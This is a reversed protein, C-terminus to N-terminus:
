RTRRAQTPTALWGSADVIQGHEDVSVRTELGLVTSGAVEPSFVIDRQGAATDVRASEPNVGVAEFVSRALSRAVNARVPRPQPVPVPSSATPAPSFGTGGPHGSANPTVPLPPVSTAVACATGTAPDLVPGAICGHNSYTWHRGALESVSLETTGSVLYWGGNFHQPEGSMGLARALTSVFARTAAGAPLFNVRGSSPGGPLTGELRWGSGSPSRDPAGGKNSIGAASQAPLGASGGAIGALHLVPPQTAGNMGNVGSVVVLVAAVLAAAGVPLLWRSRASVHRLTSM